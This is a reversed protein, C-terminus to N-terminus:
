LNCFPSTCKFVGAALQLPVLRLAWSCRWHCGNSADLRNVLYVAVPELVLPSRNEQRGLNHVGHRIVTRAEGINSYHGSGSHGVVDLRLLVTQNIEGIDGAAVHFDGDGRWASRPSEDILGFHALLM